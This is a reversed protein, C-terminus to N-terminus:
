AESVLEDNSTEEENIGRALLQNCDEYIKQFKVFTENFEEISCM